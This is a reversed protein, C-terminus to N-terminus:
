GRTVAVVLRHTERTWKFVSASGVAMRRPRTAAPELGAVDVVIKGM